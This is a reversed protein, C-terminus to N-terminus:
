GPFDLPNSSDLLPGFGGSTYGIRIPIRALWLLPISNQIFHYTDIAIEYELDLWNGWRGARLCCM